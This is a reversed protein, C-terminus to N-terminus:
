VDLRLNIVLLIQQLSLTTQVHDITVLQLQELMKQIGVNRQLHRALVELDLIPLVLPQPLWAVM